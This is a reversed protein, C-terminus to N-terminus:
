NFQRARTRGSQSFGFTVPRFLLHTRYNTLVEYNLVERSSRMTRQSREFSWFLRAVEPCPCTFPVIHPMKFVDDKQISSPLKMECTIWVTNWQVEKFHIVTIIRPTEHCDWWVPLTRPIIDGNVGIELVWKRGIWRICSHMVHVSVIMWQRRIIFRNM